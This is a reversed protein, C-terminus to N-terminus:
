DAAAEDSRMAARHERALGHDSWLHQEQVLRPEFAASADLELTGQQEAPDATVWSRRGGIRPGYRAHRVQWRRSRLKLDANEARLEAM